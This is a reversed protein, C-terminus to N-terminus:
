SIILIQGIKILNPNSLKNIKVLNEVTTKHNKAIESLTDGKKVTYTIHKVNNNTMSNSPKESPKINKNELLIGNTFENLDCDSNVGKVSGKESYQFGVWSDWVGNGSPMRVGYQAIWLPYVNLSKQLHEKIFSTYTYIVVDLNSLRKVEDLFVKSLHVLTSSSLGGDVEMDLAMKCDCKYPKTTEVFHSAQKKASEETSPKFFHYFGVLLGAEKAKTANTKFYADVSSEGQTAKIYVVDIGQSKVESFNVAGDWHSIDIGKLNSSSREQM